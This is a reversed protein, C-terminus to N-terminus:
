LSKRGNDTWACGQTFVLAQISVAM